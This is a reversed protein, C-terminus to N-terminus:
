AKKIRADASIFSDKAPSYIVPNLDLEGIAPLALLMASVREVLEALSQRNVGAQGRYGKLLPTCRLGDIMRVAEEASVPLYGFSVDKMIEVWVGGLGVMVSGGLAADRASGVIMEIGDPVQEQVFVGNAGKFKDLFESVVTKLALSDAINLRVGGVDSKHVIDPHDIKAVVPFDLELSEAEEPSKCVGSEAIKIGFLRLMDYATDIPLYEGPKVSKLIEKARTVATGSVPAANTEKVAERPRMGALMDAIQEPYRSTPIKNELMVQRGGEGLTPGFFCTLVPIEASKIVPVLAKAVEATDVTAPPVCCVLLADFANSKLMAEAAIVYHDPPATAVVDVPNRVSAEKLLNERLRASTEETTEPMDFGHNCLADSILIGPGGANTLLGVRNGKMPPMNALAAACLFCEELSHVRTIGAKKILADAIVDNGALSGTHSSAAATGAATSGAKLLLIPKTVGAATRWFRAPESISELYLVIVRTHEDKEYFPLLDCATIDAQNGLSVISSFGIGLEKGYDLMAAGIAGSQTVLAVNGKVIGNGLITANLNAKLNMEGMCNPGIMRMNYRNVIDVLREQMSEGEGGLEKFGASICIVAGVGKKGCEEAIGLVTASPTAIIALDIPEDIELISRAGKAALVDEGRINVAYVRGKFGDRLINEVIARGIGPKQSAGIIAVSDPYLLKETSRKFLPMNQEWSEIRMGAPAAGGKYHVKGNDDLEFNGSAVELLTRAGVFRNQDNVLKLYHRMRQEEDDHMGYDVPIRESIVLIPGGDIEKTALHSTSCLYPEKAALADGVGNAGGYARKGDKQISLDAPHVNIMLYEDLVCDTTAWVYGALLIANGQMPRLLEMVEADYEKRVERDRLPKERNKYYERINLSASLIGLRNATEVAKSEPNDSFIGAIEFPCGGPAREMEKQLEYAKWLTNGSGSAYGIVRLKGAAPDHIPTLM